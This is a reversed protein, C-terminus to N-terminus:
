KKSISDQQGPQGWVGQRLSGKAGIEGSSPSCTGGGKARSCYNWSHLLQMGRDEQCFSESSPPTSGRCANNARRTLSLWQARSPHLAQQKCIVGNRSESAVRSAFVAPQFVPLLSDTWSPCRCVMGVMWNLATLQIKLKKNKGPALCQATITQIKFTRGFSM